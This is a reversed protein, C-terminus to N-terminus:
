DNEREVSSADLAPAEAFQLQRRSRKVLSKIKVRNSDSCLLVSEYYQIDYKHTNDPGRSLMCSAVTQVDLILGRQM